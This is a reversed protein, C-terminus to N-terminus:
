IFLQIQFFLNMRSNKILIHIIRKLFLESKLKSTLIDVFGDKNSKQIIPSCLMDKINSFKRLVESFVKISEFVKNEKSENFFRVVVDGSVEDVSLIEWQVPTM